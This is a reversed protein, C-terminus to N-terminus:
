LVQSVLQKALEGFAPDNADFRDSAGFRDRIEDMLWQLTARQDPSLESILESITNSENGTAMDIETM